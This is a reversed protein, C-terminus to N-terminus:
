KAARAGTVEPVSTSNAHWQQCAWGAAPLM